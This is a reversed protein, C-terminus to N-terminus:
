REKPKYWIPQERNTWKPKFIDNDWKSILSLKYAKHIDLEEKFITCNVFNTLNKETCKESLLQVGSGLIELKEECKHIKNFRFTYENCLEWYHNYLWQYNAESERTWKSCPHNIHTSKYLHQLQSGKITNMATCLLQTSELVMKILRRDDLVIASLKPCKNTIFINM